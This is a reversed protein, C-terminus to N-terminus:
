NPKTSVVYIALAQLATVDPRNILDTVLRDLAMKYRKLLIPKEWPLEIPENENDHILATVAAFYIAFTLAVTSPGASRPDLITAVVASQATPIHLIKLVPDVSKVYVTWLRLALQPDPYLELVDSVMNCGCPQANESKQLHSPATESSTPQTVNIREDQHVRWILKAPPIYSIGKLSPLLHIFELFFDVSVYQGDNLLLEWTTKSPRQDSSHQKATANPQVQTQFSGGGGDVTSKTTVRSSEAFRSLLIELRELRDSINQLTPPKRTEESNKTPYVCTFGFRSCNGCPVGHDCRVKRRHCGLCSRGGLKDYSQSSPHVIDSSVSSRKQVRPM